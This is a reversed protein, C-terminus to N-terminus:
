PFNQTDTLNILTDEKKKEKRIKEIQTETSHPQVM